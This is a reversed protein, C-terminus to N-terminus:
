ATGTRKGVQLAGRVAGLAPEALREEMRALLAPTASAGPVARLRDREVVREVLDLGPVPGRRRAPLHAVAEHEPELAHEGCLRGRGGRAGREAAM